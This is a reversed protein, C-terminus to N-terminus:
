NIWFFKTAALVSLYGGYSWGLIATNATDIRYNRTLYNKVTRIEAIEVDGLKKYSQKRFNAGHGPTGSLDIRAVLYGQNALYRM